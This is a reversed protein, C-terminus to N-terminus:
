SKPTRRRWALAAIIGGSLLLTAPEPTVTGITNSFTEFNNTAGTQTVLNRVGLLATPAFAVYQSLSQNSENHFVALNFVPACPQAFTTGHCV